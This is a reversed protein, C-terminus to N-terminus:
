SSVENVVGENIVSVEVVLGVYGLKCNSGCSPGTNLWSWLLTPSRSSLSVLSGIKPLTSSSSMSNFRPIEAESKRLFDSKLRKLRQHASLQKLIFHNKYIRFAQREVFGLVEILDDFGELVVLQHYDSSKLWARVEGKSLGADILDAHEVRLLEVQLLEQFMVVDDESLFAEL